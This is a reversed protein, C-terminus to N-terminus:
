CVATGTSPSSSGQQNRLILVAVDAGTRGMKGQRVPAPSRFFGSLSRAPNEPKHPYVLFRFLVAPPHRPPRIRFSDTQVQILPQQHHASVTHQPEPGSDGGSAPNGTIVSFPFPQRGCLSMGASFVDSLFPTPLLFRFFIYTSIQM